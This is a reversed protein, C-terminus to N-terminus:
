EYTRTYISTNGKWYGHGVTIRSQPHSYGCDRTSPARTGPVRTGLTEGEFGRPHFRMMEQILDGLCYKASTNTQPVNASSTM